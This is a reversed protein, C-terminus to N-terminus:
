PLRFQVIPMSQIPKAPRKRRHRYEHMGAYRDRMWRRLRDGRRIGDVIWASDNM